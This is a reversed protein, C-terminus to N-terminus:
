RVRSSGIPYDGSVGMPVQRPAAAPTTSEQVIFVSADPTSSGRWVAYDDIGDGDFDGVLSSDNTVGFIFESGTSAGAVDRTFYRHTGSVTRRVTIDAVLSGLRNGPILFDSALGLGFSTLLSGNQGTYLEMLGNAPTIPDARQVIADGLGDGNFDYGGVVFLGGQPATGVSFSREPGGAAPLIRLIHAGTTGPAPGSLVALDDRGDGDFDGSQVPDDGNVGLTVEIPPGGPRGSRMVKFTGPAGPTWIAPDSIGDGDYDLELVSDNTAGFVFSYDSGVGLPGLNPRVIWRYTAAEGRILAFDSLGNGDFDARTRQCVPPGPPVPNGGPGGSEGAEFGSRFISAEAQVIELSAASISGIDGSGGDAVILSWQGNAEAASLGGFVADFRTPCGGHFSRVNGGTVSRYDGPPIPVGVGAGGTVSTWWNASFDDGFRYTGQLDRGSGFTTGRQVGTRGIVLLRARGVPSVLTASVDGAYIHQLDMSLRVSRLPNQVGSVSFTVTRGVPNNDPIEGVNSGSFSQAAADVSLTCLLAALAMPVPPVRSSLM